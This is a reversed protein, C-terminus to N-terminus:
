TLQTHKYQSPTMGTHKKFAKNFASKSNFGTEMLIQLITKDNEVQGELFRKSEEIRYSNVYDFFNQQLRTNLVESLHHVPIRVQKALEDLNLNPALYTKSTRMFDNLQRLYREKDQESLGSKEYKPRLVTSFIEPYRLIQYIMLTIFVPSVLYMGMKVLAYFQGGKPLSISTLFFFHIMTYGYLLFALWSLKEWSAKVSRAASKPCYPAMAVFAAAIYAFAQLDFAGIRLSLQLSSLFTGKAVLLSAAHPVFLFMATLLASDVLAPVMHILHRRTIMFSPDLASRVYFYLLPGIWFYCSNLLLYLWPVAGYVSARYNLAIPILTWATNGFLFGALLINSFRYGRRYTLFFSSLLLYLFSSIFFMIEYYKSIM